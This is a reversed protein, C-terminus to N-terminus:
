KELFADILEKWKEKEMSGVVTDLLEGESNFFFTTPVASVETLLSRYISENLLLHPYAAGTQGILEAAYDKMEQASEEQVDSIIGLIQFESKEYAGALEGLGPMEMLCPNCYTAWVNVMTLEAGSFVESSVPNGDMDMGEFAAPISSNEKRDDGASLGDSEQQVTEEGNQSSAKGDAGEGGEREAERMIESLAKQRVICGDLGCVATLTLVLFVGIKWLRKM